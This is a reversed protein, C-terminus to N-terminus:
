LFSIFLVFLLLYIKGIYKLSAAYEKLKYYCLAVNYSLHPKFGAVQLASMFKKLAKEYEEEKYLLCGLNIETDVDDPACQEMLSKVEPIDEQSYKIAAQLKKVKTELDLHNAISACVHWAEQYM